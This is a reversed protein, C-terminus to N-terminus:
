GKVVLAPWGWRKVSDLMGVKWLGPRILQFRSSSIVSM